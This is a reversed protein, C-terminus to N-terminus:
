VIKKRIEGKRETKDLLCMAMRALFDGNSPKSLKGNKRAAFYLRWIKENGNKWASEVATRIAKEVQSVSGNCMKAVAPYLQNTLPQGPEQLYLRIACEIIRYNETNMKFGLTILTNQIRQGLREADPEWLAIDGIRGALQRTDCPTKILHFVNLEELREATYNGVYNTVAVAKACAGTDRAAQLISISDMGGLMLDLVLVDPQYTGLLDVAEDADQCFVVDFIGKLHEQLIEGMTQSSLALMIKKM